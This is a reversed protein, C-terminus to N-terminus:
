SHHHLRGLLNYTPNVEWTEYPVMEEAKMADLTRSKQQPRTIWQGINHEDLRIYRAEIIEEPQIQIEGSVYEAHFVVSIVQKSANCYVGTIGIPRIVIGTEELFERRIAEDLPEGLEVNGGPMEWTDSRWHTRLLLVEGKANKVLASVSIIHKPSQVGREFDENRPLVKIAYQHLAVPLGRFGLYGDSILTWIRYNIFADGVLQNIHEFVNTVVRGAKVFGDEDSMEECETVAKLISADLRDEECGIVEGELWLRLTHDRGSLALWESEYQRRTSADLLKLRSCREVM